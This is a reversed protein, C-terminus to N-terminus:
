IILWFQKHKNQFSDKHEEATNYKYKIKRKKKQEDLIVTM